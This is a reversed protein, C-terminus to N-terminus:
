SCSLSSCSRKFFAIANVECRFAVDEGEDRLLFAVRHPPQTAHVPHAGAAVVGPTVARRTSARVVIRAQEFVHAVHMARTALGIAARADVSRKALVTLIDPPSADLSEGILGFAPLYTDIAFPGISTLAAVLVSLRRLSVDSSPPAM